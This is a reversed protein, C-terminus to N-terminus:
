IFAVDVLHDHWIDIRSPNSIATAHESGNRKPIPYGTGQSWILM